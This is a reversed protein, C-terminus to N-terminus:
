AEPERGVEDRMEMLWDALAYQQSITLIRLKALITDRDVGFYKFVDEGERETDALIVGVTAQPIYATPANSLMLNFEQQTFIDVLVRREIQYMTDICHITQHIARSLTGYRATYKALLKEMAEAAHFGIKRSM